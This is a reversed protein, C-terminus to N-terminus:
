DCFHAFRHKQLCQGKSAVVMDFYVTYICDSDTKAISIHAIVLSALGFLYTQAVWFLFHLNVVSKLWHLYGENNAISIHWLVVALASVSLLSPTTTALLYDNKYWYLGFEKTFSSISFFSIILKNTINATFLQHWHRLLPNINKHRCYNVFKYMKCWVVKLFHCLASFVHKFLVDIRNNKISVTLTM